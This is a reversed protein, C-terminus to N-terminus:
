AQIGGVFGVMAMNTGDSEFSVIDEANAASSLAPQGANGFKFVANWTLTRSGTGDQIIRLSYIGGDKQNTPAAVTRNDTLTVKGVSQIDLDWNITAGDAVVARAIYQQLTWGQSTNNVIDFDGTGINFRLRVLETAVLTSAVTTGAIDVVGLGAVNVTSSTTNDNDVIFEVELGDTYATPAQKSGIASLVYADAVGSDTYFTGNAVYGAIAKGLQNLDSSTLTQGLAEIVNQLESPVENWEIARLQGGAIKDNLDQM